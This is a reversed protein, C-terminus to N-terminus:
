KEYEIMEECYRSHPRIKEYNRTFRLKPDLQKMLADTSGENYLKCIERTDLKLIKCAELTPCFNTSHFVVKREDKHVIPAEDERIHLRELLLRYGTFAKDDSVLERNPLESGYWQIRKETSKQNYYRLQEESANRLKRIEARVEQHYFISCESNLIGKDVRIDAKAKHFLEECSIDIRKRGQRLAESISYGFAIHHINAWIIAATCMPCPEHTSLLICGGLNKGLYKSAIRLANMEAHATADHETEETDHAQSVIIKNRIIVAGFGHNGKRLSSKAEEIATRMHKELDVAM